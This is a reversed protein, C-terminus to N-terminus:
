EWNVTEQESLMKEFDAGTRRLHELLLAVGEELAIAPKWGIMKQAKTTQAYHLHVDGPRPPGIEPVLDERGAARLVADAVEGITRPRGFAINLTQGILEDCAAADLIGRVTDTVYTFDRAHTPDGFIVPPLGNMVRVIFRPIVEGSDGEHHSNPGYTNFPRVIVTPLGYTYHFARATAEGALKGAGYVTRPYTPHDEDMPTRLATGYAESSSVYVFRQVGAERAALLLRLTGDANVQFNREPRRISHRVGLCALDLLLETDRVAAAAVAPETIDAELVEVNSHGAIPAINERKGTSFDDVIRLQIERRALAACLNSGIFGAGGVVCVKEWPWDM